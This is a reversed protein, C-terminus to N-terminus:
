LDLAMKHIKGLNVSSGNVSELVFRILSPNSSDECAYIRSDPPCKLARIVADIRENTKEDKAMCGGADNKHEKSIIYVFQNAHRCDFIFEHPLSKSHDL